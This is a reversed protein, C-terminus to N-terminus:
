FSDYGQVFFCTLYADLRAGGFRLQFRPAIKHQSRARFQLLRGRVRRQEIARLRKRRLDFVRRGTDYKEIKCTQIRQKPRQRFNGAVQRPPSRVHSQLRIDGHGGIGVGGHKSSMAKM